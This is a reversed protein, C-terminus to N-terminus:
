DNEVDVLMCSNCLLCFVIFDRNVDLSKKKSFLVTTM